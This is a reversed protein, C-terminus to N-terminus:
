QFNFVEMEENNKSVFISNDSILIDRIEGKVFFGKGDKHYKFKLDGLNELYVGYSADYIGVEPKVDYLNGGLLIDEDGDKDFDYSNISYVPSFQVEKPISIKEFEFGEKLIYISTELTNVSHINSENLTKQDFIKTIDATKFSEYDPFKKKLSKIQDILDHRLAYPYDKGNEAEFCIIGEGFGNKDFDSFYLKLPRSKSANFRSNLGHNGVILDNKGDNNLDTIHIENWWGKEDLLKNEIRVFQSGENKFINIGMYEGVIILDLHGDSDIDEFSADTIMGINTLEPAIKKTQNSFNGNGDNILIFGSGPLGYSGIKIREGVFLDQDGDNDIDGSKVVGTSIKNNIDPLTQNSDIFEGKGNNLLLRDYLTQSYISHEVSGSSYYLDLDGDNDADFPLIESNEVNKLDEFIKKNKKDLYYDSGNKILIQISNGKSSSILIDEENDGNIDGKTM